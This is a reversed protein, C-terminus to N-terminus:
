TMGKRTNSHDPRSASESPWCSGRRVRSASRGACVIGMAPQTGEGPVGAVDPQRRHTAPRRDGRPGESVRITKDRIVVPATRAEKGTFSLHFVANLGESRGRQFTHPMGRLFGADVPQHRTRGGAGPATVVSRCVENVDEGTHHFELHAVSRAPNRIPERNRRCVIALLAKTRPYFKLIDARQDDLGPQGIEVLGADDAGCDLALRRLRAADIVNTYALKRGM